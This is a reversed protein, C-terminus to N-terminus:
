VGKLYRVVRKPAIMHREAPDVIQRGLVGVIYAIKPHTTDAVFRCGGLVSMFLVQDDPIEPSARRATADQNDVHPTSTSNFDGLGCSDLIKQINNPNTATITGADKIEIKLGKHQIPNTHNLNHITIDWEKM